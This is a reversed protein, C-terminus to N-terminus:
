YWASSSSGGTTAMDKSISEISRNANKIKRSFAFLKVSLKAGWDAMLIVSAVISLIEIGSM